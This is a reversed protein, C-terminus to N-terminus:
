PLRDEEGAGGLTKGGLEREVDLGTGSGTVRGTRCVEAQKSWLGVEAGKNGHTQRKDVPRRKRIPTSKQQRRTRRGELQDPENSDFVYGRFLHPHGM